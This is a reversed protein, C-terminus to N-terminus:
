PRTVDGVAEVPNPDNLVDWRRFVRVMDPEVDDELAIAVDVDYLCDCGAVGSPKMDTPQLLVEVDGEVVRWYGSVAQACRFPVDGVSVALPSEGFDASVTSTYDEYPNGDCDRQVLADVPDAGEWGAPLDAGCAGFLAAAALPHLQPHLHVM